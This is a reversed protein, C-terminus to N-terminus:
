PAERAEHRLGFRLAVQGVATAGCLVLASAVSPDSGLAALTTSLAGITMQLCGFLGAASGILKLDVSIAKTSAVPGCAGAGVMYVFMLGTVSWVGPGVIAVWALLLSAGAMSLANAGLMLRGFPVRGALRRASLNGVAIGVMLLGIYYGVEHAPRNLQHGYIFPASAIFAYVSTSACGAGMAFGIFSPSRLLRGYDGIVVHPHLRGSPSATEPLLRWVLLLNLLGFGCLGLFLSRWGWAGVWAAGLVPAIGPSILMMLALTALRKVAEENTTTDRVIARGMLMGACGGLAQMLRAALLAHVDTAFACAAGAGAYLMMGAILTPRRGIGDALPGYFLQGVALGLIYLSITMQMEGATAGLEVAAGPLAPVFIHM